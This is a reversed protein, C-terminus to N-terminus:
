RPGREYWRALMAPSMGALYASVLAVNRLSGRIPGVRRWRRSSVVLPAELRRLRARRRLARVMAVDEMIPIEPFCGVAEFLRRRVLLGQDGYPLGGLRDRLLAGLEVARGWWGAQDIALRWVAAQASPDAVTEELAARARDGLRVDAHLFCLWESRSQRAGANM